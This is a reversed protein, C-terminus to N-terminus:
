KYLELFMKFREEDEWAFTPVEYGYQQEWFAIFTDLQTPNDIYVAKNGNFMYLKDSGAWKIICPKVEDEEYKGAYKDWEEPTMYAKDIDLNSGYGDIWGNWSYQLIKCNFRGENWPIDQYGTPTDNEPVNAIWFPYGTDNLGQVGASLYLFPTIGVSDKVYDLWPKTWQAHAWFRDNQDSEWDLALIAKGIFDKANELFFRAEAYVDGGDAYHYLGLRKGSALTREAWDRWFPNTYTVGQSVKVIIFDADVNEPELGAQHSSVDIGRMAM